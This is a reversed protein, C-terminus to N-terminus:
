TRFDPSLIHSPNLGQFIHGIHTKKGRVYIVVMTKGVSGEYIVSRGEEDKEYPEGDICLLYELSYKRRIDQLLKASERAGLSLSEEDPVSLFLINGNFDKRVKSPFCIFIFLM